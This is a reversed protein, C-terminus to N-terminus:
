FRVCASLTRPLGAPLDASSAGGGFGRMVRVAARACINYHCHCLPPRSGQGPPAAADNTCIGLSIFSRRALIRARGTQVDTATRSVSPLTAQGGGGGTTCYPRAYRKEVIEGRAASVGECGCCNKGEARRGTLCRSFADGRRDSAWKREWESKRM